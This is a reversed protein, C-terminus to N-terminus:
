TPASCCCAPRSSGWGSRTPSGAAWGCSAPRSPSSGAPGCRPASSTRGSPPGRSRSSSRPEGRSASRSSSRWSCPSSARRTRAPCSRSCSRCSRRGIGFAAYGIGIATARAIGNFALAISALAVPFVIAGALNSVIRAAAFMATDPLLLGVLATGVLVVLGGRILPRARSLDGIAGGALLVIAAALGNLMILSDLGPQARVAAQVTTLQAGLDAPRHGRRPPRRRGRGADPGEDSGRVPGRRRVRAAPAPARWPARISGARLATLDARPPGESRGSGRRSSGCTSRSTVRRM